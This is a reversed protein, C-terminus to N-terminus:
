SWRVACLVNMFDDIVNFFVNATVDVRLADFVEPRQQLAGQASGVNSNLGIMKIAVYGLLYKPIVVPGRFVVWQVIGVAERQDHRLDAAFAESVFFESALRAM